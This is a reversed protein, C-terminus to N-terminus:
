SRLISLTRKLNRNIANWEDDTLSRVYSTGYSKEIQLAKFLGMEVEGRLVSTRGQSYNQKPLEIDAVVKIRGDDILEQRKIIAKYLQLELLSILEEIYIPTPIPRIVSAGTIADSEAKGLKSICDHINEDSSNISTQVIQAAQVLMEYTM